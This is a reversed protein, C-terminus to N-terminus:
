RKRNKRDRRWGDRFLREMRRFRGSRRQDALFEALLGRPKGPNAIVIATSPFTGDRRLRVLRTWLPHWAPSQVPGALEPWASNGSLKFMALTSKVRRIM